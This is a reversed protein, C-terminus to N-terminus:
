GFRERMRATAIADCIAEHLADSLGNDLGSDLIAVHVCEHFFTKWRQRPAAKGDITITRFESDYLGWCESHEHKIPETTVIVRVQGGPAEITKPLAPYRTVRKPM